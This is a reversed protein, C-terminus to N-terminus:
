KKFLHKLRFNSSVSKGNKILKMLIKKNVKTNSGWLARKLNIIGWDHRVEYQLSTIDCNLIVYLLGNYGYITFLSLDENMDLTKWEQIDADCSLLMKKDAKLGDYRQPANFYVVLGYSPEGGLRVMQEDNYKSIEALRDHHKIYWNRYILYEQM